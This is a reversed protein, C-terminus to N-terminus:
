KLDNVTNAVTAAPRRISSTIALGAWAAVMKVTFEVASGPVPPQLVVSHVKRSAILAALVLAPASVMLKAIGPLPGCVMVGAEDRGAIASATVM